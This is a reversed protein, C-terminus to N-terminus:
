CSADDDLWLIPPPPEATWHSHGGDALWEGLRDCQQRETLTARRGSLERALDSALVQAALREIESTSDQGFGCVVRMVALKQVRQSLEVMECQGDIEGPGTRVRGRLMFDAIERGVAAMEHDAWDSWQDFGDTRSKANGQTEVSHSVSPASEPSPATMASKALSRFLALSLIEGEGEYVCPTLYDHLNDGWPHGKLFSRGGHTKMMLEVAAEKLSESGFVKAITCEIEGRHGADLLGGCWLALADCGVILAALRALRRRILGRKALSEGYTQRQTVWPVLSALMTRMQGAAVACVAVRGRNLGHYAITLGDGRPPQLLHDSPVLFDTFRGGRNVSRRLAHLGYERLEFGHGSQTPLDCILAAPVGDLRCILVILRGWALNSIFRKEGTVRFGDEVREARTHIATLDSGTHPETLAFATQREGRALSPLWRARQSDTGFATLAGVAGICGHVSALGAVTASVHAMQSLFPYFAALPAASGGYEGPARLGWYGADSLSRLAEASVKESRDHLTGLDRHDRVVQLSDRMVLRWPANVCSAKNQGGSAAGSDAADIEGAASLRQPRWDSKDNSALPLGLVAQAVPSIRPAARRSTENEFRAESM